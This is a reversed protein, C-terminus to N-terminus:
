TNGRWIKKWNQGGDTTKYVIGQTMDMELGIRHSDDPTWAPSAIEGMAYVIDSTRPDVTFGRFALPLLNPDIGNRMLIWSHGGDYSKFIDGPGNTGVWLIDPDHPDVTTCFVPIADIGKRSTIGENSQIWTMGKDTSIHFGAWDDTVYWINPDAFNYRIDYGLGGIPGGTRVWPESMYAPDASQTQGPSSLISLYIFLSLICISPFKIRKM